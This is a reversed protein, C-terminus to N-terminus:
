WRKLCSLFSLLLLGFALIAFSDFNCIDKDSFWSIYLRWIQFWSNCLISLRNVWRKKVLITEKYGTCVMKKMDSGSSWFLEVLTRCLHKVVPLGLIFKENDQTAWCVIWSLFRVYHTLKPLLFTFSCNSPPLSKSEFADPLAEGSLSKGSCLKHWIDEYICHYVILFLVILGHAFCWTYYWLKDQVLVLWDDYSFSKLLNLVSNLFAKLM